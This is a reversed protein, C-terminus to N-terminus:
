LRYMSQTAPGDEIPENTSDLIILASQEQLFEKLLTTIGAVTCDQPTVQLPIKMVPM